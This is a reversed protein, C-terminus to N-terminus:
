AIILVREIAFLALFVFLIVVAARFFTWALQRYRPNGTFLWALLSGGIGILALLAFLRVILM